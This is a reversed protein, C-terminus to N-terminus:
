RSRKEKEMVQAWSKAIGEYRVPITWNATVVRGDYRASMVVVGIDSARLPAAGNILGVRGRAVLKMFSAAIAEGVRPPDISVVIQAGPMINNTLPHATESGRQLGNGAVSAMLDESSSCLLDSALGKEFLLAGGLLPWGDPFRQRESRGTPNTSGRTGVAPGMIRAIVGEASGADRFCAALALVATKSNAGGSDGPYLAAIASRDCAGSATEPESVVPNPGAGSAAHIALQRVFTDVDVIDSLAVHCLSGVPLRAGVDSRLPPLRAIESLARCRAQPLDSMLRLELSEDRVSLAGGIWACAEALPNGAAAWGSRFRPISDNPIFLSAVREHPLARMCDRFEQLGSMPSSDSRGEGLDAAHILVESSAAVLLCRSRLVAACGNPLLHAELGPELTRVPFSGLWKEAAQDDKSELVFLCEAQQRGDPTVPWVALALRGTLLRTLDSVWGPLLKSRGESGHAVGSVRESISKMVLAQRADQTPNVVVVLGADDPVLDAPGERREQIWTYCGILVCVAAMAAVWRRKRWVSACVAAGASNNAERKNGM